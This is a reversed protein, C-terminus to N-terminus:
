RCRRRLVGRGGRRGCGWRWRGGRVRLGGCTGAWCGAPLRPGVLSEMALKEVLGADLKTQKAGLPLTSNVAKSGLVSADIQHVNECDVFVPNLRPAPETTAHMFM